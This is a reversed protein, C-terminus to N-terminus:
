NTVQTKRSNPGVVIRVQPGNSSARRKIEILAMEGTRHMTFELLELGGPLMM